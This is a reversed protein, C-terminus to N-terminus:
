GFDRLEGVPEFAGAAGGAEVGEGVRRALEFFHGPFMAEVTDFLRDVFKLLERRL